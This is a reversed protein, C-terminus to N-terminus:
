SPQDVAHLKRWWQGCGVALTSVPNDSLHIHHLVTINDLCPFETVGNNNLYLHVTHIGAFAQSSLAVLRNGTISVVSLSARPTHFAFDPLSTLSNSTLYLMELATFNTFTFPRITAILNNRLDLWVLSNYLPEIHPVAELQNYSLVLINIKLGSFSDFEVDTLMNNSMHFRIMKTLVFLSSMSISRIRNRDLYLQTTETPISAPISTINCNSCKYTSGQVAPMVCVLIAIRLILCGNMKSLKSILPM